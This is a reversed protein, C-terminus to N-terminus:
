SPEEKEKAWGVSEIGEWPGRKVANRAAALNTFVIVATGMTVKEKRGEARRRKDKLIVVNEVDGAAFEGQITDQDIELGEGEKVWRVKVSRDVTQDSSEAVEGSAKNEQEEKERQQQEMRERAEQADRVRRANMEALRNRNVEKLQNIKVERESWTRKVGNTAAFGNGNTSAAAEAQELDEKLGRRRAELAENEAKRRLKAERSQDYKAKEDPTTLVNLALQLQHFKELNAPTPEVKDPHYRISTKRYARRIESETAAPSVGLLDYYDTTVASDAM